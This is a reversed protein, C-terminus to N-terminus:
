VTVYYICQRMKIQVQVSEDESLKLTKFFTDLITQIFLHSWGMKNNYQLM